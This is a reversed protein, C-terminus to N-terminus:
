KVNHAFRFEAASGHDDDFERPHGAITSPFDVDESGVGRHSLNEIAISDSHNWEVRDPAFDTWQFIEFAKPTEIAEQFFVAIGRDVGMCRFAPKDAAEGCPHGAHRDNDVCDVTKCEVFLRTGHRYSDISCHFAGGRVAAVADDGDAFKMAAPPERESDAVFLLRDRDGVANRRPTHGLLSAAIGRACRHTDRRVIIDDDRNATKGGALPEFIKQFSYPCCASFDIARDPYPEGACAWEAGHEFLDSVLRLKSADDTKETEAIVNAIKQPRAIKNNQRTETFTQGDRKELCHGGRLRDDGGHNAAIALDGTFPLGGP